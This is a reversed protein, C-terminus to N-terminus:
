GKKRLERARERRCCVELKMTEWVTLRVAPRVSGPYFDKSCFQGALVHVLGARECESPYQTFVVHTCSVLHARM